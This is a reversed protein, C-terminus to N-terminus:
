ASAAANVASTVTEASFPQSIFKQVVVASPSGIGLDSLAYSVSKKMSRLLLSAATLERRVAAKCKLLATLLLILYLNWAHYEVCISTCKSQIVLHFNFSYMAKLYHGVKYTM